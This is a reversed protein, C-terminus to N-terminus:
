KWCTGDSNYLKCTRQNSGGYQNSIQQLERQTNNVIMFFQIMAIMGLVFVVTGLICGVAAVGKNDARGKHARSIGSLGFSFALLGLIVAIWGTLPMLTFVLGIIAMTLAATGHGNRPEPKPPQWGVPPPPYYSPQPNAPIQETM